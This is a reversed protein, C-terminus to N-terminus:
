SCAHMIGSEELPKAYDEKVKRRTFGLLRQLKFVLDLYNGKQLKWALILSHRLAEARKIAGGLNVIPEPFIAEAYNQLWIPIGNSETSKKMSETAPTQTSGATSTKKLNLERCESSCFDIQDPKLPRGCKKCRKIPTPAKEQALRTTITKEETM